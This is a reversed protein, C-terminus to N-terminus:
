SVSQSAQFLASLRVIKRTPAGNGPLKAAARYAHTHVTRVSIGLETAVQKHLYGDAILGCVKRETPSLRDLTTSSPIVSM